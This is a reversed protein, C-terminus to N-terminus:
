DFENFSVPNEIGPFRLSNISIDITNNMGSASYPATPTITGILNTLGKAFGNSNFCNSGTGPGPCYTLENNYNDVATKVAKLAIEPSQSTNILGVILTMNPNDSSDSEKGVLKGSLPFGSYWQPAESSHISAHYFPNFYWNRFVKRARFQVRKNGENIIEKISFGNLYRALVAFTCTNTKFYSFNHVSDFVDVQDSTIGNCSVTGVVGEIINLLNDLTSTGAEVKNMENALVVTQPDFISYDFITEIVEAYVYMQWQGGVADFLCTYIACNSPTQSSDYPNENLGIYLNGNYAMQFIQLYATNFYGVGFGHSIFSYAGQEIITRLLYDPDQSLGLTEVLFQRKASTIVNVSAPHTSVNGNYQSRIVQDSAGSIYSSVGVLMLDDTGDANFDSQEVLIGTALTWNSFATIQTTLLGTILQFNSNSLQRLVYPTSITADVFIDLLGDNDYHGLRVNNDNNPNDGGGSGGTSVIVTHTSGTLCFERGFESDYECEKLAYIYSGSPKDTFSKSIACSTQVTSNNELLSYKLTSQGCANNVSSITYDGTTSSTPGTLGSSATASTSFIFFALLLHIYFLINSM